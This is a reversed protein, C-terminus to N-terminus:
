QSCNELQGIKGTRLAQRICSTTLLYLMIYMAHPPPAFDRVVLLQSYANSHTDFFATGGLAIECSRYDKRGGRCM